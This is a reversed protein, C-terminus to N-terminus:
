RVIEAVIKDKGEPQVRVPTGKRIGLFKALRTPLRVMLSNGAVGVKGSAHLGFLGRQKAKEQIADVTAEDFWEEGCRPCRYGRYTGIRVGHVEM